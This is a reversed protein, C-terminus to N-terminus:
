SSGGVSSATDSPAPLERVRDEVWRRYGNMPGGYTARTSDQVLCFKNWIDRELVQQPPTGAPLKEDSHLGSSSVIKPDRQTCERRAVQVARYYALVHKTEFSSQADTQNSLSFYRDKQALREWCGSVLMVVLMAASLRFLFSLTRISSLARRYLSWMMM